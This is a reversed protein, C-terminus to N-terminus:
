FVYTCGTLHPTKLPRFHNLKVPGVPNVSQVLDQNLKSNLSQSESILWFRLM